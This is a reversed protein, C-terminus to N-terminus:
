VHVRRKRLEECIEAGRGRMSGVNWTGFREGFWKDPKKGNHLLRHKRQSPRNNAGEKKHYAPAAWGLRRAPQHGYRITDMMSLTNKSCFFFFFTSRIGKMIGFGPFLYYQIVLIGTALKWLSRFMVQGCFYAIYKIIMLIKTGWFMCKCVLISDIFANSKSIIM